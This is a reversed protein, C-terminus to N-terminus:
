PMLVRVGAAVLGLATALALWCEPNRGVWRRASAFKQRFRRPPRSRKLAARIGASRQRIVADGNAWDWALAQRQTPILERMVGLPLPHLVVGRVAKGPGDAELPPLHKQRLAARVTAVGEILECVDAPTLLPNSAVGISPRVTDWARRFARLAALERYAARRDPPPPVDPITPLETPIPLPDPSVEAPAVPVAKAIRRANPAVRVVEADVIEATQVVEADLIKPGAETTPKQRAPKPPPDPELSVEPFFPAAPAATAAILAQALRNMGETVLDPNVLQHPRLKEMLALARLEAATPDIKGPPLGLLTRDDPPWPGPPLGLWQLLLATNM